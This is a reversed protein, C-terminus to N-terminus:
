MQLGIKFNTLEEIVRKEILKAIKSDVKALNTCSVFVQPYEPVAKLIRTALMRNYHDADDNSGDEADEPILMSSFIEGTAGSEGAVHTPGLTLPMGAIGAWITVPGLTADRKKSESSLAPVASPNGFTIEIFAEIGEFNEKITKVQLM